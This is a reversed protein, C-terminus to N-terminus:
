AVRRLNLVVGVGAEDKGYGTAFYKVGDVQVTVNGSPPTSNTFDALVATFQVDFDQYEGADEVRIVNTVPTVNGYVTQAGWVLTSRFTNSQDDLVERLDAAM